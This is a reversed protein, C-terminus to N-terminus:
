PLAQPTPRPLRHPRVRLGSLGTLLRRVARRVRGGRVGRLLQASGTALVMATRRVPSRRRAIERLLGAEHDRIFTPVEPDGEGRMTIRHAFFRRHFRNAYLADFAIIADISAQRGPIGWDRAAPSMEMGFIEDSHEVVHIQSWDLGLRGVFDGDITGRFRRTPRPAIVALPHLHFCHALLLDQGLIWYIHSPWANLFRDSLIDHAASMPHLNRLAISVLTRNAIARGDPGAGLRADLDTRVTEYVTRLGAVAVMKKGAAVLAEIRRFTGDSWISDATLFVIITTGPVVRPHAMGMRYLRSMMDHSSRSETLGDVLMIETAVTARLEAFHASEQLAVCDAHRTAVLFLADPRGAFHGLNGGTLLFPLAVDAFQRTFARGWVPLIFIIRLPGGADRDDAQM